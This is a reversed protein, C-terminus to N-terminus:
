RGKDLGKQISRFAKLGEGLRSRAWGRRRRYSRDIEGLGGGMIVEMTVRAADAGVPRAALEEVWRRLIKRRDIRRAFREEGGAHPRKGFRSARRGYRTCLGSQDDDQLYRELELAAFLDEDALTGRRALTLITNSRRPQTQPTRKRAEEKSHPLNARAVM